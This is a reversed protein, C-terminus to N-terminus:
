DSPVEKPTYFNLAAAVSMAEDADKMLPLARSDLHWDYVTYRLDQDAYGEAVVMFREFCRSRSM